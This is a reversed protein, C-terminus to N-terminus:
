QSADSVSLLEVEFVLTSNPPIPGNRNPGYALSPPIILRRIGGVQMGVLGKDWGEIVQSPSAGLTFSFSGRGTSTDFEVGKEETKSPDWLWGTYNVELVKGAIAQAGDGAKLDKQSFAPSSPATATNNCAATFAFAVVAFALL